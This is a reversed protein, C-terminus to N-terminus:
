PRANIGVQIFRAALLGAGKELSVFMNVEFQNDGGREFPRVLRDTV